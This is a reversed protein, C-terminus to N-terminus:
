CCYIYTPIEPSLLFSYLLYRFTYRLSACHVIGVSNSTSLYMSTCAQQFLLRRNGKITQKGRFLSMQTGNGSETFLYFYIHVSFPVICLYIYYM